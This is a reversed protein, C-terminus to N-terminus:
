DSPIHLFHGSKILNSNLGTTGLVRDILECLFGVVHDRYRKYVYDVISKM